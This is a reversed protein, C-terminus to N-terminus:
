SCPPDESLARALRHSLTERKGPKRARLTGEAASRSRGAGRQRRLLSAPVFSRMVGRASRWCEPDRQGRQKVASEVPAAAQVAQPVRKTGGFAAPARTPPATSATTTAAPAHHAHRLLSSEAAAIRAGAPVALSVSEPAAIPGSGAADGRVAAGPTAGPTVPGPEPPNSASAPEAPEM